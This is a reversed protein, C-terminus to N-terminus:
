EWVAEEKSPRDTPNLLDEFYEKWKRGMEETSAAGWEWQVDHSKPVVTDIAKLTGDAWRLLPPTVCDM